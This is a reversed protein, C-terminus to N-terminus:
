NHWEGPYVFRSIATHKAPQSAKFKVNRLFLKITCDVVLKLDDTTLKITLIIYYNNILM